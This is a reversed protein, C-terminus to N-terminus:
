RRARCRSAHDRRARRADTYTTDFDLGDSTLGTIPANKETFGDTEIRSWAIQAFPELAANAVQFAYAAEAFLSATSGDYSATPKETVDGVVM